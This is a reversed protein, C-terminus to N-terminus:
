KNRKRLILSNFHPTEESDMIINQFSLMDFVTTVVEQLQDDSYFSFFRKPTYNDSERIGEFDKGGYIGLYFLGSPKMIDSIKRLVSPFETRTLHLLSNLSYVVDFSNASFQLDTMDMVRANLGKQKCLKVMEPSLDICVVQFGNDQFFKSDRGPGAGIELLSCKNEQQLLSLFKSREEIKWGQTSSSDRRKADLDYAERLNDRFNNDTMTM